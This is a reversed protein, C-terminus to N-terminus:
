NKKYLIKTAKTQKHRIYLSSYTNKVLEYDKPNLGRIRLMECQWNTFKPKNQEAM